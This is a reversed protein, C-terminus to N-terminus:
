TGMKSCIGHLLLLRVDATPPFGQTRGPRRRLYLALYRQEPRLLLPL